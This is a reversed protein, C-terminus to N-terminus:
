NNRGVGGSPGCSLSRGLGKGGFSPPQQPCSCSCQQGATGPARPAARLGGTYVSGQRLAWKSVSHKASVFGGTGLGRGM